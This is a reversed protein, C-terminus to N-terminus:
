PLGVAELSSDSRRSPFAIAFSMYSLFARTDVAFPFFIADKECSPDLDANLEFAVFALARKQLYWCPRHYYRHFCLLVLPINTKRKAKKGPSHRGWLKPLSCEVSELDSAEGFCVFRLLSFFLFFAHPLHTPRSLCTAGGGM